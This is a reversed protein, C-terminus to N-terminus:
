FIVEHIKRVHCNDILPAECPDIIDGRAMSKIDEPSPICILSMDDTVGKQLAEVRVPILSYAQSSYTPLNIMIAEGLM